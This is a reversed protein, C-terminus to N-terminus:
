NKKRKTERGNAKKKREISDYTRRNKNSKANQM